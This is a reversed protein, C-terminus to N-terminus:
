DALLDGVYKRGDAHTASFVLAMEERNPGALAGSFAGSFAFTTDTIAGSISGTTAIEGAFVLTAKETTVAGVTEFVRITGTIKPLTTTSTAPVVTFTTVTSTVTGPLTANLTGGVVSPTGTYTINAAIATTTTVPITILAVRYGRLTGATAGVTAADTRKYTARIMNSFPKDLTLSTADRVYIRQTATATTREAALYTPDSSLDPFGFVSKEPSATFALGGLGSIRSADSFRETGGTPTFNAYIYLGGTSLAFDSTFNFVAPTATATPSPTPTGPTPSPTPSPSGGCSTLVACCLAASLVLDFKRLM